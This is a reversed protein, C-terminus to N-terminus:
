FREVYQFITIYGVSVSLVSTLATTSSPANENHFKARKQQPVQRMKMTSSPANENYFKAKEPRADGNVRARGAADRPRAAVTPREGSRPEAGREKPRGHAPRRNRRCRRHRRHRAANGGSWELGARAPPRSVHRRARPRTERKPAGRLSRPLFHKPKVFISAASIGPRFALSHRGESARDCGRGPPSPRISAAEHSPM